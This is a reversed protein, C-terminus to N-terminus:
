LIIEKRAPLGFGVVNGNSDIVILRFGDKDRGPSVLPCAFPEEVAGSLTVISPASRASAKCYPGVEPKGLSTFTCQPSMNSHPGAYQTAVRIRHM